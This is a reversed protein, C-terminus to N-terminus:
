RGKLKPDLADRLGDGMLNFSLVVILICLGPLNVLWPSTEIFAKADALMVGWEPTPPQAGLGLFGLAAVNLIGESFGLSALVIIPAMCNPLINILIQRWHSAGFCKSADVYPKKMESMTAGRVVRIYNPLYVISVAIIGNELSPGLIAVIVIALLISPLAMLIDVGRMIIQDVWGGFYGALLGLSVGVLLSLTVVLFGVMLSIRTGFILRSLVDRGIDDTGLFHTVEGGSWIPPLNFQNDFITNPDYPALLPAFLSVLVFVILVYLGFIAGKNQNLRLFFKKVIGGATAPKGM